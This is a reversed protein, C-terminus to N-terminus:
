GLFARLRERAGEPTGKVESEWLVLCDIGVEAYAAVLEQEHEFPARGTFMRSHWYDGFAEVVKTVGKKPKTPDPGPVIFDPNKHHGLAPLWRWFSRDGTYTLRPDLRAVRRELGNPGFKTPEGMQHLFYSAYDRDNQPYAVGYRDILDQETAAPMEHEPFTKGVKALCTRISKERVPIAEFLNTTGYRELNTEDIKARVEPAAGAQRVGYRAEFIDGVHESEIVSRSGYRELCTAVVKAMIEPSQLPSDVGYREQCTDRRKELFEALQLPHAVGYREVFREVQKEWFGEVQAYRDVGYKARMGEVVRRKGEESAFFHSGYRAEMTELQRRRVEPDMATWPVGYRELNTQRQKELVEPSCSPSVGGYRGLNTAEIKKRIEPSALVEEHGHRELNTARTRRRIVPAQQPNEVGHRERMTERIKEQVEPKAFPNDEGRLVPRKGELSAQVQEYKSSERAFVNEAGYKELNTSAAKARIEESQMPNDVGYKERFTARQRATKTAKRDRNKWVECTRRHRKMQTLSTAEYGCLCLEVKPSLHPACKSLHRANLKSGKFERGCHPCSVPM